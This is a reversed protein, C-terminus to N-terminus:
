LTILINNKIFGSYIMNHWTLTLESSNYMDSQVITSLIDNQSLKLRNMFGLSRKRLMEPFSYVNNLVFMGSASCRRDLNHLIRYSNNYAVKVANYVSQRYSSWLFCLYLNSCYASFLRNKIEKSCNYFQRILMNSRGYLLGKKSQMDVELDDRLRNDIIHGLYNYNSVYKLSTGALTLNAEVGYKQSDFLMLQSKSGNFKIDYAEGYKSCENLLKRMGKASPCILVIDDAYMFQNIIKGACCCGAQILNLNDTLGYTYILCCQLCSEM